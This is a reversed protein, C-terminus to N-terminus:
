VVATRFSCPAYESAVGFYGAFQTIAGVTEDVLTNRSVVLAISVLNCEYGVISGVSSHVCLQGSGLCGCHIACPVNGTESGFDGFVVLDLKFPVVIGDLVCGAALRVIELKLSGIVATVGPRVQLCECDVTFLSCAARMSVVEFQCAVM